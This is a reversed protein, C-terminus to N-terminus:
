VYSGVLIPKKEEKEKEEREKADEKEEIELGELGDVCPGPVENEPEIGDVVDCKDDEAPTPDDICADDGSFISAAGSKVAAAAKLFAEHILDPPLAPDELGADELRPPIIQHLLNSQNETTEM